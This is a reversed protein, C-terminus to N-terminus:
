EYTVTYSLEIYSFWRCVCQIFMYGCVTYVYVTSIRHINASVRNLIHPEQHTIASSSPTHFSWVQTPISQVLTHFSWVPTHILSSTTHILSDVLIQHSNGPLCLCTTSSRTQRSGGWL